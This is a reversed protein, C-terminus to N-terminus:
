VVEESVLFSSLFDKSGAVRDSIRDRLVEVDIRPISLFDFSAPDEVLRDSLGVDRLLSEMRTNVEHGRRPVVFFERGFILSFATAHFSNSVVVSAGRILGLFVSPGVKGFDRDCYRNRKYNNVSYVKLGFESSVRSVLGRIEDTNDFDYLLIYPDLGKISEVVGEWEEPSLLFVPDLVHKVGEFGLNALLSVGHVERVSIGDFKGLQEKVFGECGPRLSSSSFSAAYSIRRIEKSGFSLYFAPDIGNEYFTNWIQDSGAIYVDAPPPNDVL